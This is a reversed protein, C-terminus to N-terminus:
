EVVVTLNFYRNYITAGTQFTGATHAYITGDGDVTVVSDDGGLKSWLPLQRANSPLVKLDVHKSSGASMTLTYENDGTKVLGDASPTISDVPDSNSWSDYGGVSLKKQATLVTGDARTAKVSVVTDAYDDRMFSFEAKLNVTRGTSTKSFGGNIFKLLDTNPISWEVNKFSSGDKERATLQFEENGVVKGSEAGAIVIDGSPQPTSTVTVTIKSSVGDATATITATGAKGATLLGTGMVNAVSSNSSTWSVTKNTANEPLVAASLQVSKGAIISLKGNSVSDGSITVSSVKVTSNDEVTVDVSAVKSGVKASVKATGAQVAYVVGAGSVAIAASDSWWTAKDSTNAGVLYLENLHHAQMTLKGNVVGKGSISIESDDPITGDENVKSTNWAVGLSKTRDATAKRDKAPDWTTRGSADVKILRFAMAHGKRVQVTGTYMNGSKALRVGSNRSWADAQGWDGVAYLTEGSKLDAAANITVDVTKDVTNDWKLGVTKSRDATAKVDGVRDWTTRGSADVKVLRATVARGKRVQVTGTYAGGSKALRVGSNRSWANAQGWDGVAYLTEGAKLAVGSAEFTIDVTEDPVTVSVRVSASRGGASATVTATGAKRGATVVGTGMVNAVSSDSSTWTVKRDTANDPKVTATLQASAGSKLSLKGNSVGDGSISVSSVPVTTDCTIAALTASSGDWKVIGGNYDLGPQRSGPYQQSGGDTFIVKADKALSDPVEYKYGSQKCGDTATTATMEVGPWKANSAATAGDGTYVYAYMKGWSSPKTAYITNTKVPDLPPQGTVTVKISASKDGAKATITATGASVPTVTGDSAVTAVSTDSSKWSVAVGAPDTTATLQKTTVGDSIDTTYNGENIKVSTVPTVVCNRAEWTGSSTNGNWAYNGDISLGAADEGDTTDAPYKKTNTANGDNFIIRTNDGVLDDPIEYKYEGDQGCTDSAAVKTMPEGPWKANEQLTTADPDDVYVYAYLNSWANPKKAYATSTANPDKKTCTFEGSVTQGDADKGQVKVTVTGGVATSAGVTITDGDKYSGSKGESTTYTTNTANSANLTVTTTNTKFSKSGSASVSASNDTFFVSIKGAPASGSTIKGGSVTIKGGSVQDTYSGDDLTTTTGALNQTDGMNTITVGDNKSNGDKIYREVMLCSNAGCNRMYEAAKNNNMTNRFHNVAVVQPDKWSPSGADGLKSKEAFQPQSGGSGVPRDFYLPMTQSRSGIVGWGMTMQWESMRTSEYDGNAYNDHSEVWSVLKSPSASHSWNSLDSANLNKSNLAGRLKQGYASATVGGGNKSHSSFLNAYDSDRSISDQLVEGYQFQAGNNLIINWYQSNNYEDPLEIHKAADFRFGDVGDSVAQVLFDHMMNATETNETNIDYLGLLKCHTVQYRNNWDQVDGNNCDHHYYESKKWRDSIAGWTATMHNAVVDVIIRVGYKHATECLSKLDSETGMVWNGITTDTPQYVYYWNETFIMGKGGSHIASIPETQVSTYGAEAIAPINEEITKFSWEWAHLTAGESMQQALGYHKRAQEFTTNEVTDAYSDRDTSAQAATSAIALGGFATAAATIGVVVKKSIKLGLRHWTPAPKRHKM